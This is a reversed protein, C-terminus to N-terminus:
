AGTACSCSPMQTNHTDTMMPLHKGLSVDHDQTQGSQWCCERDKKKKLAMCQPEAYMPDPTLSSWTWIVTYLPLAQILIPNGPYTHCAIHRGNAPVLEFLQGPSFLHLYSKPM